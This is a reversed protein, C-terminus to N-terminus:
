KKKRFVREKPEVGFRQDNIKIATVIDSAVTEFDETAEPLYLWKKLVSHRVVDSFEKVIADHFQYETPILLGDWPEEGLALVLMLRGHLYVAHCGFMPKEFYSPEEMLPEVIYLFPHTKPKKKSRSAMYFKVTNPQKQAKLIPLTQPHRVGKVWLGCFVTM